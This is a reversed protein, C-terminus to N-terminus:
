ILQPQLLPASNTARSFVHLGLSSDVCNRLAKRKDIGTYRSLDFDVNEQLQSLTASRIKPSPTDFEPIFFNSWLYHRGVKQPPILPDYYSQVNEVVWKGEFHYRLFIIEQYLAMDPYVGDFGKARVGVNYRYQSHTPCPPSSWIFDFDQYNNILFDHANEVIVNDNPFFDSYVQAIDKNLEIATVKINGAWEKRNGGIGAYLNLVKLM